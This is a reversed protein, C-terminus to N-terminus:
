SQRVQFVSYFSSSFTDFNARPMIFGRRALHKERSAVNKLRKEVLGLHEQVQVQRWLGPNGPPCLDRSLSLPSRSPLRDGRDLQDPLRPPKPPIALVQSM